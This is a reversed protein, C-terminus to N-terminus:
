FTFSVGAELQNASSRASQFDFTRNLWRVFRVEPVIRLGFQDIFQFGGGVVVGGSLRHAPVLPVEDCCVTRNDPTTTERFRNVGTARRFSMGGEVFWRRGAIDHDQSYRRLVVPFEWFSSKTTDLDVTKRREDTTTNPNDTGTYTTTTTDFKVRRLLVSGALAWRDAWAFQATGGGGLRFGGPQNSSEILLNTASESKTGGQMLNLGSM